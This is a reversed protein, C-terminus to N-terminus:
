HEEEARAAHQQESASRGGRGPFLRCIPTAAGVNKAGIAPHGTPAWANVAMQDDGTQEGSAPNPPGCARHLTRALRAEELRGDPLAQGVREPGSEQVVHVLLGAVVVVGLRRKERGPDRGLSAEGVGFTLGSGTSSARTPSRESKQM